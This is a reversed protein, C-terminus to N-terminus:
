LFLRWFPKVAPSRKCLFIVNVINKEKPHFNRVIQSPDTTKEPNGEGIFSVAMIYSCYQQLLFHVANEGCM